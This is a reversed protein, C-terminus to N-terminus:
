ACLGKDAGAELCAERSEVQMSQLPRRAGIKRTYIEFDNAQPLRNREKSNYRLSTSFVPAENGTKSASLPLFVIGRKYFVTEEWIRSVKIM